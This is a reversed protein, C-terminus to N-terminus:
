IEDEFSYEEIEYKKILNFIAVHTWEKGERNYLHISTLYNRIRRSSWSYPPDSLYLILEIMLAEEEDDELHIGDESLKKGYPIYGCRENRSKKLQLANSTRSRIILREYEAFADVLRRMLLGSPDDNDTGEGACSIIRAKKRQVSSEIMAMAVADGRSLRDRKAVLLIDGKGLTAIAQLLGPRKDLGLSGSLGEDRFIDSPVIQRTKCYDLCSKVQADMGIKQDDTSTRAYIIYTPPSVKQTKM